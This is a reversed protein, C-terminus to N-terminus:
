ERVAKARSILAESIALEFMNRCENRNLAHPDEGFHDKFWSYLQDGHFAAIRLFRRNLKM